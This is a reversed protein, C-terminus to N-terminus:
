ILNVLFWHFPICLFFRFVDLLFLVDDTFCTSRNVFTQSENVLFVLFTRIFKFSVSGKILSVTTFSYQAETSGAENYATIKLDYMTGPALDNIAVTKMEPLFVQDSFTTWKRAKHPKYVIKFAQLRCSGDHWADLHVTSATSNVSLMSNKHPAVPAMGETKTSIMGSPESKGVTNFAVIYYQYKTGCGLFDFVHSKAEGAMRLEEWEGAETKKQYLLYGTIPNADDSAEETSSWSLQISNLSTSVVKLLPTDPPDTKLCIIRVYNYVFSQKFNDNLRITMILEFYLVCNLLYVVHISM